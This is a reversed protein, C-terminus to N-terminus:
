RIAYGGTTARVDPSLPVDLDIEPLVFCGPNAAEYAAAIELAKAESLLGGVIQIGTPLGDATLGAPVVVAAADVVTFAYSALLTDYFREVPKGGVTTPLAQDLRFAAIGTAPTVIADYDALYPRLRNWYVTRLREAESVERLSLKLSGEVQNVLQAMLQDRHEAVLDAYRAVMGFARTGTVIQMLGDLSIEERVIEAGLAELRALAEEAREAVEPDTPVAGAFDRVFLLRKGALSRTRAAAAYDPTATRLSRPDRPDPGALAQMALCLDGLGRAFPGHVHSTLTDWAFDTPHIPIGGPQTRLGVLGNFAAPVRVSGGLDTGISLPAMGASVAAASGGSSGGATRRLDWPNRTPGFIRNTTVVDHAFEPTNGKGLLIGGAARLREVAIGDVEPVYAQRTLSGFTTRLGATEINDKVVFPVGELPRPPAGEALRRDAAAAEAEAQPNLTCIANVAGNVAAVRELAAQTLRLASVRGGAVGAAMEAASLRWLDM